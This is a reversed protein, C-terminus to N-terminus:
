LLLTHPFIIHPVTCRNEFDILYVDNISLKFLSNLYQINSYRQYFLNSLKSVSTNFYTTKLELNESREATLVLTSEVKWRSLPFILGRTVTITWFIYENYESYNLMTM